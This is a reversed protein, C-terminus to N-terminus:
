TRGRLGKFEEWYKYSEEETLGEMSLRNKDLRYRDELFLNFDNLIQDPKYGQRMLEGYDEIFDEIVYKRKYDAQAFRYSIYETFQRAETPTMEYPNFGLDFGASKFRNYLTIASKFTNVKYEGLDDDFGQKIKKNQRYRRSQIRRRERKEEVTLKRNIEPLTPFSKFEPVFGTQRIAKVQSGGSYYGKLARMAEYPDVVGAKIEKVTPVHILPALGAKSARKIRKQVIDRIRTYEKFDIKAM